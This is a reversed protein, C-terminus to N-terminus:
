RDIIISPHGPGKTELRKKGGLDKYYVRKTGDWKMGANKIGQIDKSTFKPESGQPPDRHTGAVDKSSNDKSRLARSLENNKSVLKKSNVAAHMEEMQEQLPMNAPFVRNKWKAVIAKAEGDSTALSNAINIATTESLTKQTEIRTQAIIEQMEERMTERTLPEEGEVKDGGERKEERKEERGKFANKAKTLDPTREEEEKVIADYDQQSHDEETTEEEGTEEGEVPEKNEVVDETTEESTDEPNKEM